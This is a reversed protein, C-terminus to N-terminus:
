KLKNLLINLLLFINVYSFKVLLNAQLNKILILSKVNKESLQEIFNVNNKINDKLYQYFFKYHYFNLNWYVLLPILKKEFNKNELFNVLSFLNSFKLIRTPGTIINLFLFNKIMKQYLGKKMNLIDIHNQKCFFNFESIEQTSLDNVHIFLFITNRNQAFFKKILNILFFNRPKYNM